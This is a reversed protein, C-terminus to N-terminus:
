NTLQARVSPCVAPVRSLSPVVVGRVASCLVCTVRSIRTAEIIAMHRDAGAVVWGRVICIYSVVWVSGCSVVRACVRWVHIGGGSEDRVSFRRLILENEYFFCLFLLLFFVCNCLKNGAM